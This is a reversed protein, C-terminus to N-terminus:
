VFFNYSVSRPMWIPVTGAGSPQSSSTSQDKEKSWNLMFFVAGGSTLISRRRQQTCFIGEFEDVLDTQENM